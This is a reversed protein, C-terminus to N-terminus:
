QNFKELRRIRIDRELNFREKNFHTNINEKDSYKLKKLNKIIDCVVTKDNALNFIKKILKFAENTQNDDITFNDDISGTIIHVGSAWGFSRPSTIWKNLYNIPEEKKVSTLYFTFLYFLDAYAILDIDPLMHELTNQLSISKKSINQYDIQDSSIIENLLINNLKVFWEKKYPVDLDAVSHILWERPFWEWYSFTAQTDTDLVILKEGYLNIFRKIEEPENNDFANKMCHFFQMEETPDKKIRNITLNMTVDATVKLRKNEKEQIKNFYYAIFHDYFFNAAEYNDLKLSNLQFNFSRLLFFKTDSNLENEELLKFFSKVFILKDPFAANSVDEMSFIEEWSSLFQRNNKFDTLFKTRMKVQYGNPDKDNWNSIWKYIRILMFTYLVLGIIVIAALYNNLENPPSDKWWLLPLLLCGIMILFKAPNIVNQLIVMKDWKLIQSINKDMLFIVLPLLLALLGSVLAIIGDQNVSSLIVLLLGNFYQLASCIIKLSEFYLTIITKQFIM